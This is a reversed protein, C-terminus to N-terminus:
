RLEDSQEYEDFFYFGAYAGLNVNFEADRQIVMPICLTIVVAPISAAGCGSCCSCVNNIIDANNRIYICIVSHVALVYDVGKM